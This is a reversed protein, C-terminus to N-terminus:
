SWKIFSKLASAVINKKFLYFFIKCGLVYFFEGWFNSMIGSSWWKETWCTKSKHFQFLKFTQFKRMKSITLSQLIFFIKSDRLHLYLLMESHPVWNDISLSFVILFYGTSPISSPSNFQKNLLNSLLIRMFEWKPDLFGSFKSVYYICPGMTCLVIRM